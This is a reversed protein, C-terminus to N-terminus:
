TSLGLKRRAKDLTERPLPIFGAEAVRQQGAPSLIQEFFARELAPLHSGPPLNVYLYLLRSLPYDGNVANQPSAEIRRGQADILALPKVLANVYGMGSYGIGSIDRAVAAVVAASGSYQNTDRRFDGKCLAERKFVAQSGSAANRGHRGIHRDQWDGDLGLGGWHTVGSNAGCRRTDSFVADLQTLTIAELPNHRNVFIALADIAVPIATPAYGYREFFANAEDFTMRRSMVGIRSTGQTLAPPATASGSAQLQLEVGPYRRELQEGWRMMLGALTDSGVIDLSGVVQAALASRSAALSSSLLIGLVVLSSLFRKITM